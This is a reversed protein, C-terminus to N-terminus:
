PCRMRGRNVRLNDFAVVVDQKAFHGMDTWISLHAFADQQLERARGDGAAAPGAGLHARCPPGELRPAGGSLALVALLARPKQRHPTLVREGDVVELPGLLRIVPV